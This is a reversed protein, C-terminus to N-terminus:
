RALFETKNNTVLRSNVLRPQIPLSSILKDRLVFMQTRGSFKIINVNCAYHYRTSHLCPTEYHTPLYSFSKRPFSCLFLEEIIIIFCFLVSHILKKQVWSNEIMFLEMSYKWRKKHAKACSRFSVTKEVVTANNSIVKQFNWCGKLAM